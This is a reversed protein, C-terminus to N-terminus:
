IHFQGIKFINDLKVMKTATVPKTWYSDLVMKVVSEMNHLDEACAEVIINNKYIVYNAKTNTGSKTPYFRLLFEGTKNNKYVENSIVTELNVRLKREPTKNEKEFAEKVSKINYYNIGFRVTTETVKQIKYGQNRYEAKLPMDTTYGFRVFSGKKVQNLAKIVMEYTM